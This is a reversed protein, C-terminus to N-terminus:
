CSYQPEDNYMVTIGVGGHPMKVTKYPFRKLEEQVDPEDYNRGVLLKMGSITNAINTRALAAGADGIFRQKGQVSVFSATQRNSSENLIVDIGGKGTQSILMSLAGM